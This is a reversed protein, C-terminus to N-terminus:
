KTWVYSQVQAHPKEASEANTTSASRATNGVSGDGSSNNLSQQAEKSLPPQIELLRSSSVEASSSAERTGQVTQQSGANTVAVESAMTPCSSLALLAIALIPKRM